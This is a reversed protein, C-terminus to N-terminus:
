LPLLLPRPSFRSVASGTIGAPYLPEWLLSPQELTPRTWANPDAGRGPAGPLILLTLIDSSRLTWCSPPGLACSAESLELHAFGRPTPGPHCSRHLTPVSELRLPSYARLYSAPPASVAHWAGSQQSPTPVSTGLSGIHHIIIVAESMSEQGWKPLSSGACVLKLLM